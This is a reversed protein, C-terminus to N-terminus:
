PADGEYKDIEDKEYNKLKDLFALLNLEMAAQIEALTRPMKKELAAVRSEWKLGLAFFHNDDYQQCHLLLLRKQELLNSGTLKVIEAALDELVGITRLQDDQMWAQPTPRWAAPDHAKHLLPEVFGELEPLKEKPIEIISGPRLLEGRRKFSKIVKVAQM